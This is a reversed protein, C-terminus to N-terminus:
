KSADGQKWKFITLFELFLKSIIIYFQPCYAVIYEHHEPYPCTAPVQLHPSSGELEM